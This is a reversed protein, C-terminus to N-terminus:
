TVFFLSVVIVIVFVNSLSIFLFLINGHTLGFVAPLSKPIKVFTSQWSSKYFSFGGGTSSVIALITGQYDIFTIDSKKSELFIPLSRTKCVNYPPFLREFIIKNDIMVISGNSVVFGKFLHKVDNLCTLVNYARGTAIYLDVYKSAEQLKEKVSDTLSLDHAKYLTGDVDIFVAKKM